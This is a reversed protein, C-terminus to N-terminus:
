TTMALRSRVTEIANVDIESNEISCIGNFTM